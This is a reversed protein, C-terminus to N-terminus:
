VECLVADLAAPTGASTEVRDGLIEAVARASKVAASGRTRPPSSSSTVV